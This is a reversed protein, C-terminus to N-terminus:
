LPIYSHFRNSCLEKRCSMILVEMEAITKGFEKTFGRLLFARAGEVVNLLEFAGVKKLKPDRPWPSSPMRYVRETVSSFGEERLWTAFLKPADPETAMRAGIEQFALALEM